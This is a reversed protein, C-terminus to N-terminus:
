GLSQHIRKSNYFTVIYEFVSRQAEELTTLTIHNTWKDELSWFLREARTQDHCSGPRSMSCEIGMSDLLGRYAESTYQCGRDSHHLLRSGVPRRSEIAQRLASAVLDTALSDGISWGVSQPQLSRPCRGRLGMGARHPPLHHRGGMKSEASIGHFRSRNFQPCTESLSRCRDDDAQIAKASQKQPRM